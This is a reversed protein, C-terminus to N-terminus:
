VGERATRNKWVGGGVTRGCKPRGPWLGRGNRGWTLDFKM